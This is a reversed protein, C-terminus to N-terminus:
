PPGQENFVTGGAEGLLVEDGASLGSLVQARAPGRVGVEVERREDGGGKRVRVFYKGAESRLAINPVSLAQEDQLLIIRARMRQGPTWGFNRAAESTVPAKMTLYKVPSARSTVRAAGAVWSIESIVTQDPRGAPWLEVTNGVRIGEAEIQPLALEVELASLDPLRGFANGPRLSSGVSPKVGAWDATLAMVGDHPARLELADLDDRARAANIQFTSRQADLVAMELEGRPASQDRKWLLMDRRAELFDVDDIADLLDNQAVALLDASAYREAIALDVAATSLDVTVRGQTTDLENQKLARAVANRELEIVAEAMDLEGRETTFRALVDGKRVQTGEAALWTVQRPAWGEGPVRLPTAKSSQLEGEGAVEFTIAAPAVIESLLLDDSQGCAVLALSLLLASFRGM